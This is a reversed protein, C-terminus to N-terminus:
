EEATSDAEVIGLRTKILPTLDYVSDAYVLAAGDYIMAFGEEKGVLKIVSDVKAMIPDYLREREQAVEGQSNAQMQQLRGELAQLEQVRKEQESQSLTMGNEQFDRVGTQYKEALARFANEKSRAFSEVKKEAEEVDPLLSLVEMSKVYGFRPIATSDASAAGPAQTPQPQCATFAIAIVLVTLLALLRSM